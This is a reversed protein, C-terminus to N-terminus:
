VFNQKFQASNESSVKLGINALFQVNPINSLGDDFNYIEYCGRFINFVVILMFICSM